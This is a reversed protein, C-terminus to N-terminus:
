RLRHRRHPQPTAPIMSVQVPTQQPNQQQQQHYQYQNRMQDIVNPNQTSTYSPGPDGLFMPATTTTPLIPSLGPTASSQSPTTMAAARLAKLEAEAEFLKERLRLNDHDRRTKDRQLEDLSKKQDKM